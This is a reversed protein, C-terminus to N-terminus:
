VCNWLYLSRGSEVARRALRTMEEIADRASEAPWQMEETAAWTPAVTGVQEPALKALETVMAAPLRHILREGGDKELLCAFENTLSAEWEVHRMIAWLTSLELTTIRKYQLRDSEPWNPNGDYAAAEKDASIYIDALVGM